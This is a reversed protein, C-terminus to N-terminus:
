HEGGLAAHGPHDAEATVTPIEDGIDLDEYYRVAMVSRRPEAAECTKDAVLPHSTAIM